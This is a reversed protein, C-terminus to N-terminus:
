KFNMLNRRTANAVEQLSGSLGLIGASAKDKTTSLRQMDLGSIIGPYAQRILKGIEAYADAKAKLASRFGLNRKQNSAFEARYEAQEVLDLLRAAGKETDAGYKALFSNTASATQNKKLQEFDTLMQAHQPLTDETTTALTSDCWAQPRPTNERMVALADGFIVGCQKSSANLGDAVRTFNANSRTSATLVKSTAQDHLENLTAVLNNSINILTGAYSAYRVPATKDSKIITSTADAIDNWNKIDDAKLGDRIPDDKSFTAVKQSNILGFLSFPTAAQLKNVLAAPAQAQINITMLACTVTSLIMLFLKRKNFFRLTKM